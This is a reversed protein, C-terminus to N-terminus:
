NKKNHRWPVFRNESRTTTKEFRHASKGCDRGIMNKSHNSPFFKNENRTTTEECHHVNKEFDRGITKWQRSKGSLTRLPSEQPSNGNKDHDMDFSVTVCNLTRVIDGMELLLKSNRDYERKVKDLLFTTDEVKRALEENVEQLTDREEIIAKTNLDSKQLEM